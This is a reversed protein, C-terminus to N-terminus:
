RREGLEDYFAAFDAGMSKSTDLIPNFKGGAIYTAISGTADGTGGGAGSGAGTGSGRTTERALYLKDVAVLQAPTLIEDEISALWEDAQDPDMRETRRIETMIVYLERVQEASLRLSANEEEMTRIFGFVRGLDFVVATEERAEQVAPDPTTQAVAAGAAAVAMALALVMRLAKM